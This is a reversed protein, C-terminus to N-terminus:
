FTSLHIVCEVDEMDESLVLFASGQGRRCKVDIKLLIFRLQLNSVQGLLM